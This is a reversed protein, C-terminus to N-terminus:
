EEKEFMKDFCLECLGSIRFENRGADSYCRPIASLGCDICLGKERNATSESGYISEQLKKKFQNLPM